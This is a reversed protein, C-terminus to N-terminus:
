TRRIAPSARALEVSETLLEVAREHNGAGSYAIGLNQTM